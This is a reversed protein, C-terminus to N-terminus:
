ACNLLQELEQMAFMDRERGASALAAQLNNLIRALWQRPTARALLEPSPTVERGTAEGIRALAESEHL